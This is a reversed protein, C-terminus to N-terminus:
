PIPHVANQSVLIEKRNDKSYENRKDLKTEICFGLSHCLLDLHQLIPTVLALDGPGDAQM